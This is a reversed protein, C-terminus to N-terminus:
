FNLQVVGDRGPLIAIWGDIEGAKPVEMRIKSVLANHDHDVATEGVTLSNLLGANKFAQDANKLSFHQSQAGLEDVSLHDVMRHQILLYPYTFYQDAQRQFGAEYIQLPSGTKEAIRKQVEDIAMKPIVVWGYPLRLSYHLDPNKYDSTTDALAVNSAFSALGLATVVFAVAKLSNLIKM